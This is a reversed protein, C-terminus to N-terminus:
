GYEYMDTYRDSEAEETIPLGARQRRTRKMVWRNWWLPLQLVQVRAAVGRVQGHGLRGVRLELGGPFASPGVGVGDVEDLFERPRGVEALARLPVLRHEFRRPVCRREVRRESVQRIMLHPTCYLFCHVDLQVLDLRSLTARTGFTRFTALSRYRPSANPRHPLLLNPPDRPIFSAKPIPRCVTSTSYSRAQDM